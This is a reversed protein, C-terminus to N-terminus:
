RNATVTKGVRIRGRAVLLRSEIEISRGIRSIDTYISDYLVHGRTDPKKQSM